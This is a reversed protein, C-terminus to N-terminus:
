KGVKTVFSYLKEAEKIVEDSTPFKDLEPFKTSPDNEKYNLFEDIKAQRSSYVREFMSEKALKLIELRIQYGNSMTKRRIQTQTNFVLM